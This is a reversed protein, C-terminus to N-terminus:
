REDLISAIAQGAGLARRGQKLRVPIGAQRQCRRHRGMLGRRPRGGKEVKRPKGPRRAPTRKVGAQRLLNEGAAPSTAPWLEGFFAAGRRPIKRRVREGRDSEAADALAAALRSHGRRAPLPDPHLLTRPLIGRRPCNKALQHLSTELRSTPSRRRCSASLFAGTSSGATLGRLHLPATMPAPRIPAADRHLTSAADPAASPCSSAASPRPELLDGGIRSSRTFRPPQGQRVWSAESDGCV